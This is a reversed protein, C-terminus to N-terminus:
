IWRKLIREVTKKRCLFREAKWKVSQAAYRNVVTLLLM